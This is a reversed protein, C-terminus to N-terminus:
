PQGGVFWRYYPNQPDETLVQKMAAAWGARDRAMAALSGEYFRFLRRRERAVDTRLAEDGRLPPESALALVRPLVRAVEGPRVWSAHEIRPRDDTVPLAKGAYSELGSRDTVWTALLAAPTAIGVERLAAAVTSEEFRRSIRTGDLEIPTASGVLLMEHLETTWLTAYPFVDLLSRVLSRSAEDNQTPLPWWQAMLGGPALRRRCLAYFDSSYLNVVGAASPPPPELTILDWQEESRLLEHRGDGFRIQLRPDTGAGYNGRFLPTAKAVAPLLEAAVRRELGPYTLLAGATIGTGLGVVLASRPEGRHILLPLLAQLRMYRLSTLTDGSNSVGDIYLRRFPGHSTPQELVVVSGGASEDRFVVTGGREAALYRAVADSPILFAPLGAAAVLALPLWRTQPAATRDRSLALAGLAAAATALLALAHVVGLRPVLLFGTALTGVVGGVTNLAAVAGIDSGVRDADVALRLAAPFAAGLLLTAPLVMTASAVAFRACMDVNDNGTTRYAFAGIAAQLRPLWTGLVALSTVALVGAGTILLGLARWPRVVRDAIRAWLASGIALGTLYTAVLVAFAFSRTSLFPVIAQSWVIQYGLAIGGAVAYLSLAARQDATHAVREAPVVELALVTRNWAIALLGAAIDLAAAAMGTGLVGLAPVLLLPTALAGAIAGATNAAYLRGPRGAIATPGPRVARALAPLTGGMAFAPLGVLAFPLTYAFFGVRGQLGVFASPSQALAWTTALGAAGAGLELIGYLRGPHRSRDGLRGLVLAGVALGTFFASLAVTVAHVDVGVVLGLQKVWLTEFVLSAAGSLSMLLAAASTSLGSKPAPKKWPRMPIAPLSDSGPAWAEGYSWPGM